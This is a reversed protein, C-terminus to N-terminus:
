PASVGLREQLWVTVLELFEPALTEEIQQYESLAGTECHQFLHNLGPLEVIEFDANGGVKLAEAIAPLNQEPDVQLDKSGNVALVPCSVQRLTPAPDYQIFWRMWPGGLQAKVLETYEESSSFQSKDTDTLREYHRDLISNLEAEYVEGELDGSLFELLERQDDQLIAIGAEPMGEAELLLRQQLELVAQGDVGPGAMMVIAAVDPNAVAVMPAVLGGESHGFLAVRDADIDPRQQLFRVGAEADLAFDASTSGVFSGTSQGVGRDDVRLVALGQRSLHDALVWFPKHGMLPEDRDQPGSGTILLVAPHPGEGPPLTLTGHITILDKGKAAKHVLTAEIDSPAFSYAVDKAVYPFPPQPMQPRNVTPAETVREFNLPMPRGQLWSGEIHDPDVITGTYTAGIDSLAFEIKDGDVVLNKVRLGYADQDISDISARLGDVGGKLNLVLRLELGANLVGSWTGTMPHPAPAEIERVQIDDYWVTCGRNDTASLGARVRVKETGEPVSFTTKVETWDTTGTIPYNEQTTAFDLIKESKAGWSQVCISVGKNANRTKIWGSLEYWHGVECEPLLKTWNFYVIDQPYDPSITISVSREGSHVVQDDWEFDVFEKFDPLVTPQWDGKEHARTLEPEFGGDALLQPSKYCGSNFILILAVAALAMLTRMRMFVDQENSISPGFNIKKVLRGKLSKM